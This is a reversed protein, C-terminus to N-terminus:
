RTRKEAEPSNLPALWGLVGQIRHHKGSDVKALALRVLLHTRLNHPKAQQRASSGRRVRSSLTARECSGLVNEKSYGYAGGSVLQVLMVPAASVMVRRVEKESNTPPHPTTYCCGVSHNTGHHFAPVRHTYAAPIHYLIKFRRM